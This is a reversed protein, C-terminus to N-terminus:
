AGRPARAAHDVPFAVAGQALENPANCLVIARVSGRKLQSVGCAVALAHLGPPHLHYPAHSQWRGYKSAGRNDCVPGTCGFGAHTTERYNEKAFSNTGHYM